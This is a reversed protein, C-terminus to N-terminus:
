RWRASTLVRLIKPAGGGTAAAAKIALIDAVWTNNAGTATGTVSGPASTLLRAWMGAFSGVDVVIDANVGGIQEASFIQPNYNKAASFLILDDGGPNISGSAMSSGTGEAGSPGAELSVTDGSDPRFQMVGINRYSRATGWTARFTAAADAQGILRYGLHQWNNNNTNNIVALLTFINNGATDRVDMTSAGDEWSVVGVLVDGAQINLSPTTDLTTGSGGGYAYASAIHAFGM